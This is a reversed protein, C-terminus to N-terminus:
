DLRASLMNLFGAQPSDPNEQGEILGELTQSAFPSTEVVPRRTDTLGYRGDWNATGILQFFLSEVVSPSISTLGCPGWCASYCSGAEVNTSHSGMWDGSGKELARKFRLPIPESREVPQFKRSRQHHEM